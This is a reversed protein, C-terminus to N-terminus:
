CPQRAARADRPIRLGPRWAIVCVLLSPFTYIAMEVYTHIYTCVKFETINAGVEYVIGAIDDGQNLPRPIVKWDKPNTGSVVVKIVLQDANPPTPIPSDIIEARPGSYIFVEKM